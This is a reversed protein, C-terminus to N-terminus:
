KERPVSNLALVIECQMFSGGLAGSEEKTGKGKALKECEKSM